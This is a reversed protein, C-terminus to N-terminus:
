NAPGDGARETTERIPPVDSGVTLEAAAGVLVVRGGAGLELRLDPRLGPRVTIELLNELETYYGKARGVYRWAADATAPDPTVKLRNGPLGFGHIAQRLVLAPASASDAVRVRVQAGPATVLVASPPAVTAPWRFVSQKHTPTALAAGAIMALVGVGMAVNKWREARRESETGASPTALREVRVIFYYAFWAAWWTILASWLVDSLFHGGAAMRAAGMGAGLATSAGLVAWALRPRKPRLLLFIAAYAFAVSPHGAPFSKATGAEGKLLPPRYPQTGDFQVIHKPRPRGWHNKFVANVLVGPGLILTILLFAGTGRWRRAGPRLTGVVFGWVAGLVLAGVLVPPAYYFLQVWGAHELFWPGAAHGREFFVAAARLDLDTLWFIPTLGAALAFWVALDLWRRDPPSSTALPM